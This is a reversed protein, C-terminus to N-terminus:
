DLQRVRSVDRRGNVESKDELWEHVDAVVFVVFRGFDAAAFESPDTGDFIAIGVTPKCTESALDSIRRKQCEQYHSDDCQRDGNSDDCRTEVGSGFLADDSDSLVREDLEDLDCCGAVYVRVELSVYLKHLLGVGLVFPSADGVFESRAVFRVKCLEGFAFIGVAYGLGALVEM